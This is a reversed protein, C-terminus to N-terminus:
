MVIMCHGYDSSHNDDEIVLSTPKLMKVAITVKACGDNKM